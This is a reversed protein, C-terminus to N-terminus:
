FNDRLWTGLRGVYGRRASKAARTPVPEEARQTLAYHLLGACVSFAPGGTAEALGSIRIPRGLRVQKDLVQGALERVGPLQSAGGTLVVRRGAVKDLGSAELRARVMEFTEEMRPRIIDVLFSKPIQNGQSDDDEGVQPVVITEREDAPSGIAGGYLTKMREAHVTPTSLGRAIDNTVHAGGIPVVDTFVAKGDFFVALSTTGGGMDVVTVGLDMEDEVLCALGAAFPSAVLGEIELQAKNVCLVLNRVVSASTTITHVQVGLKEGYMGRPDRIGRNGDVVYSTPISHLLHRDGPEVMGRGHDHLRRMDGEDIERGAVAMEVQVIRSTPQGGSVNVFVDRIREGTMKEAADVANTISTTVTEMDLITGARMGHSAQHGIGVIQLQVGEAHAIFCCTKTTGVDVAAIPGRPRALAKM